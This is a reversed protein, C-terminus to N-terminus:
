TILINHKRILGELTGDDLWEDILKSISNSLTVNNLSTAVGLPQRSLKQKLIITTDDMYGNLISCDLSFADATGLELAMRAEAASEHRVYNVGYKYLAKLLTERTTTRNVIAITKGSLDELIKINSDNKVMIGIYDTYYPPSFKFLKKREETITFTAIMIDVDGNNLLEERTSETVPIFYANGEDGTFEKAILKAIDIELGEYQMTDKNYFGFGPVDEKIGVKLIGDRKISGPTVHNSSFCGSLMAALM